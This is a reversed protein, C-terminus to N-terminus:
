RCVRRQQVRDITPGQVGRRRCEDEIWQLVGCTIRVARNRRSDPNGPESGVHVGLLLRISDNGLLWVPSGSHGVSTDIRYFLHTPTVGEIRLRESHRFMLGEINQTPTTRPRESPYGANTLLTATNDDGRPQLMMFQSPRTFPTPLFVLGLDLTSHEALGASTVVQQAPQAPMRDGAAAVSYNAGPTVRVRHCFPGNRRESVVHEATLVVQPAILTGSGHFFPQFGSGFDREIMCITNFPFLKTSPNSTAAPVLVRDDAPDMVPVESWDEASEQRARVDYGGFRGLRPMSRPRSGVLRSYFYNAERLEARTWTYANTKM